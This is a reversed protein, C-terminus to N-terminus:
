FRYIFRRMDRYNRPPCYAVEVEGGDGGSGDVVGRREGVKLNFQKWISDRIISGM